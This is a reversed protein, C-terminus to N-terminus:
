QTLALLVWFLYLFLYTVNVLVDSVSTVINLQHISLISSFTLIHYRMTVVLMTYTTKYIM